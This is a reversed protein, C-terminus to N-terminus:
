SRYLKIYDSYQRTGVIRSVEVDNEVLIVTPVSMIGYNKAFEKNSDIDIKTVPVEESVQTMIPGLMRCPQCWSATFYLLKRM